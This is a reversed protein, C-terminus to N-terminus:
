KLNCPANAPNNSSTPLTVPSNLRVSFGESSTPSNLKVCNKVKIGSLGTSLAVIAAYADDLEQGGINLGLSLVDNIVQNLDIEAVNIDSLNDQVTQIGNVISTIIDTDGGLLDVASKDIFPLTQYAAGGPQIASQLATKIGELAEDLSVNTLNLLDDFGAGEFNLTAPILTFFQTLSLEGVDLSPNETRNFEGTVSGVEDLLGAL